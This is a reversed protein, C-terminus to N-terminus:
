LHLDIGSLLVVGSSWGAGLRQRLAVTDATLTIHRGVDLSVGAGTLDVDRLRSRQRAASAGLSWGDARWAIGANIETQNLAPGFRNSNGRDVYAGGLVINGNRAQLGVSWSNINRLGPTDANGHVYAGSAGIVWDGFPREYQGGIEYADKQVAGFRKSKPAWSAGMRFGAVPPSFYTIKFSQRTDLPWLLASGNTYRAFDGRIQGSGILPAAFSMRRAPGSNLGIEARGWENAFYAFLRDNKLTDPRNDATDAAGTMGLVLGSASIWEANVSGSADIDGASRFGGPQDPQDALAGTISVGGNAILAVDGLNVAVEAAAPSTAGAMSAMTLAWFKKNM